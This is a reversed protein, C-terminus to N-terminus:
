QRGFCRSWFLEEGAALRVIRRIQGSLTTGDTLLASFVPDSPVSGGTTPGDPRTLGPGVALASLALGIALQRIGLM